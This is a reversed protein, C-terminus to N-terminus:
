ISASSAFDKIQKRSRPKDGYDCTETSFASENYIAGSNVTGYKSVDKRIKTLTSKRLPYFPNGTSADANGHLSVDYDIPEVDGCVKRNIIYQLIVADKFVAGKADQLYVINRVLGASNETRHVRMHMQDSRLADRKRSVISM